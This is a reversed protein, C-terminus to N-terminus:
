PAEQTILTCYHYIAELAEHLEEPEFLGSKDALSIASRLHQIASDLENRIPKTKYIDSPKM